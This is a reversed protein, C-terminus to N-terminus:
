IVDRAYQSSLGLGVNDPLSKNAQPCGVLPESAFFFEILTNAM